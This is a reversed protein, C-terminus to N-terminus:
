RLLMPMDETQPNNAKEAELDAEVEAPMMGYPIRFGRMVNMGTNDIYSVNIDVGNVYPHLVSNCYTFSDLIAIDCIQKIKDYGNDPTYTVMVSGGHNDESRYDNIIVEEAKDPNFRIESPAVEKGISKLYALANSDTEYLYYGNTYSAYTYPDYDSLAIIPTNNALTDLTRNDLDKAFEALFANNENGRLTVSEDGYGNSLTIEININKDIYKRILYLNNKYNEDKFIAATEAYTADMPARYSRYVDRGSKLHYCIIYYNKELENYGNGSREAQSRKIASKEPNLAEVGHGAMSLITTTDEFRVKDLRDKTRDIYQPMYTGVVPKELDYSPIEGEISELSISASELSEADPLYRDYGILDYQFIVAIVAAIVISIALQLKHRLANRFGQEFIADMIIHSVVAFVIFMAWYWGAPLSSSIYSVYIGGMLAAVVVTPIRIIPKLIDYCLPRNVCESPRKEYLKVAVVLLIAVEVIFLAILLLVRGNVTDDNLGLLTTPTILQKWLPTTGYDGAYTQFCFNCYSNIMDEITVACSLLFISGLVGVVKNGTIMISITSIVMALLFVVVMRLTTVVALILLEGTLFRKVAIVGIALLGALVIAVIVPIASSLFEAIFMSRRKLPMSHYLDVRSKSYLYGFSIFAFVIGLVLAVAIGGGMGQSLFFKINEIIDKRTLYGSMLQGDIEMLLSLPVFIVLVFASIIYAWLHRRLEQIFMKNSLTRSTM